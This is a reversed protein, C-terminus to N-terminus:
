GKPIPLYDSDPLICNGVTNTTPMPCPFHFTERVIADPATFKGPTFSSPIGEGSDVEGLDGLAAAIDARTPNPGAAEIARALLRIGSCNSAVSSARRNDDDNLFDYPTTVKTSNEVYANNCMVAFPDPEFDPLRHEGARSGSILIAGNYLAGAEAGGFEVMKGTVLESDQALFSTNVFQIQGPQVGQIVMESLYGPLSLTNLLPFIVEVGDAVMGQVSPIIGDACQPGGGCGIVDARVVDIGAAEMEQLLGEDVVQPDPDADGYVVGVKKGALEDALERVAYTLINTPSHNVSFLRGDAAEFSSDALDYTTLFIVDHAATLCSALPDGVGTFSFAAVASEDEAITTCNQQAELGPDEALPSSEVTTLVLKRGNIGGCVDNIINVFTEAQDATDGNDFGFGIQTLDELRLRVNTISISDATIGADTVTPTEAAADTSPTCFADNGIFRSTPLPADTSTTEVDTAAPTTDVQLTTEAATATSGNDTDSGCSAIILTGALVM